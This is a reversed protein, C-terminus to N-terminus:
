EVVAVDRPDNSAEVGLAEEVTVALEESRAVGGQQEIGPGVVVAEIAVVDNESV